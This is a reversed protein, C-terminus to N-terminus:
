WKDGKASATEVQLYSEQVIFPGRAAEDLSMRPPSLHWLLGRKGGKARTCVDEGEVRECGEPITPGNEKREGEM